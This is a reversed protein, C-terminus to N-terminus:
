LLMSLLGGAISDGFDSFIPAIQSGVLVIAAAGFFGKIIAAIEFAVGHMGPVFFFRFRNKMGTRVTKM